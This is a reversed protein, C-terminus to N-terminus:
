PRPTAKHSERHADKRMNRVAPPPPRPACDTGSTQHCLELLMNPSTLERPLELDVM